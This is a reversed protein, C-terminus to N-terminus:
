KGKDLDAYVKRVAEVSDYEILEIVESLPTWIVTGKSKAFPAV